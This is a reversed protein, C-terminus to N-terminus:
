KPIEAIASLPTIEVGDKEMQSVHRSIVDISEPFANAVGIALGNRKAMIGLEVLKQQIAQPTRNEDLYLDAKAFPLLTEAAINRTATNKISGDDVFLLGRKAIEYMVPRLAEDNTLLKGGLFNMIGVYNTIRSMAWHLNALNEEAALGTRLTEQGPNNRPYDFPEMPVQLLLEHGSKRAQQMWRALSNGYPAFGLTVSGPLENIAQQTTTQSIGLGGVIIVARAVGFNGSTEPERSYVDMARTGDEGLKPIVGTSIREILKPDPIHALRLDQRVASPPPTSNEVVEPEIMEGSPELEKMAPQGPEVVREPREATETDRSQVSNKENATIVVPKPEPQLYLFVGIGMVVLLTLLSFVSSPSIGGSKVPKPKEQGLPKELDKQM